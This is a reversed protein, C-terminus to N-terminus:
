EWRVLEAAPRHALREVALAALGAASALAILTVLTLQGVTPMPMWGPGVGIGSSVLDSLTGFLFLGLPVGVVVAAVGLAAGAMAGQVILQRPTFGLAEEVGVRRASERTTTLMSALLNIGAMLILIFAVLRIAVIFTDLADGSTDIPEVRVSSGARQQLEGALAQPTTGKAGTVRYVDPTTGPRQATLTEMRYQLMEGSDETERYWGVIRVTLPTTGALFRIEDGVSVGFRKLFGYGAIAEGASRMPRGEAIRFRADDPEGGIAVSSFAGDDFTSRQWVESYWADVEPDADLAAEIDAASAGTNVVTVDYPDGVRATDARARDVAGIFGFSVVAGVVAVAVALATLATRGPRSAIDRIGLMSLRPPVGALRRAVGGSRESPADRLVDTVPRRAARRAPLLTAVTLIGSIVLATVVLGLLGWSAGQPGLAAGIGLQLKPALLGALFWGVISAALGLVLHELLLASSVQRPTFGVAGLLGIERRREVLRAAMSSAVVVAAAALVFLGFATVFAGFVRDLTLFDRRTDLWSDTGGIGQVGALAQRQVFPDAEAADAFRLWVQGFQGRGPALRRLGDNTVWAQGPECQPYFCDTLNVATGVVNFRAPAGATLHVQDGVRIGRDAAFSRDLVIEDASTVWRGARPVPRGVAVDHDDLATVAVTIAETGQALDANATAFPGASAKVAPDEAVRQLTSPDGYVVLHAVDAGAAVRDLLPAGQRAVVLGASIGVAALVLVTFIAILGGKRRGRLGAAAM